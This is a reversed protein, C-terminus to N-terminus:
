CSHIVSHVDGAPVTVSWTGGSTGTRSPVLSGEYVARTVSVGSDRRNWAASRIDASPRSSM